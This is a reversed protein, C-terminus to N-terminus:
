LTEFENSGFRCILAPKDKSLKEIILDQTGQGTIVTKKGYKIVNYVHKYVFLHRKTKDPIFCSLLRVLFPNM